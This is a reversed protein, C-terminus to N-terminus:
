GQDMDEFRAYFQCETNHFDEAVQDMEDDAFRGTPFEQLRRDTYGKWVRTHPVKLICSYTQQNGFICTVKYVKSIFARGESLLQASFQFLTYTHLNKPLKSITNKSLKATISLNTSYTFTNIATKFM